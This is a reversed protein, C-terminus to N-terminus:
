RYFCAKPLYECVIAKAQERGPARLFLRVPKLPIDWEGWACYMTEGMGWYAGWKDYGGDILYLRELHLKIKADANAPLENRRGFQAGYMSSGKPLILKNM